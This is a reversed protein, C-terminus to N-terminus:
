ISLGQLKIAHRLVQRTLHWRVVGGRICSHWQYSNGQCGPLGPRESSLCAVHQKWSGAVHTPNWGIHLTAFPGKETFQISNTYQSKPPCLM